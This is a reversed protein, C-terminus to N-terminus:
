GDVAQRMCEDFLVRWELQQLGVTIRYAESDPEHAVSEVLDVFALADWSSATLRLFRKDALLPRIIDDAKAAISPYLPHNGTQRVWHRANSFDGERRHMIMHWFAGTANEIGQSIEHSEHLFDHWLWLGSLAAKAAEPAAPFTPTMKYADLKQLAARAEAPGPETPILARYAKDQNIALAARGADTLYPTQLKMAEDDVM